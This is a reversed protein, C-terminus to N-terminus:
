TSISGAHANNPAENMTITSVSALDIVEAPSGRDTRVAIIPAGNKIISILFVSPKPLQNQESPFSIIFSFISLADNAYLFPFVMILFRLKSALLPSRIAISPGFPAPFVVMNLHM